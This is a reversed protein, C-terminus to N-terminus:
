VNDKQLLQIKDKPVSNTTDSTIFINHLIIPLEIGDESNTRMEFILSEYHAINLHIINESEIQNTIIYERLSSLTIKGGISIYESM